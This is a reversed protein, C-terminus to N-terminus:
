TKIIFALGISPQLNNHAGGGGTSGTPPWVQISVPGTADDYYLPNDGATEGGSGWNGSVGHTHAPIEPTTLTHTEEGTLRGLTWATAGPATGTGIGVPGRGRCDPLGFTTVGNGGYTTGLLAALTPYTAILPTSGDCSLYGVPPSGLSYMFIMGTTVTGPTVWNTAYNVGSTKALVQGTTGGVPLGNPVAAANIAGTSMNFSVSLFDKILQTLNRIAAAGGSVADTDAPVTPDFPTLPM